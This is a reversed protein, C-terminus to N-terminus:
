GRIQDFARVIQSTRGRHPASLSTTSPLARGRYVAAQELLQAPRQSRALARGDADRIDYNLKLASAWETLVDYAAGDLDYAMGTLRPAASLVSDEFELRGDEFITVADIASGDVATVTAAEVDLTGRVVALGNIWESEGQANLTASLRVPRQLLRDSARRELTSALDLDTWYSTDGVKYEDARVATMRRLRDIM